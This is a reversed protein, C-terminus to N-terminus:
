VIFKPNIDDTLWVNNDSLFFKQGTEQLERAKITLIAPEKEKSHRKGVKYATEKDQSLHVYNRTRKQLGTKFISKVFDPSTGHYLYIPPIHSKFTIQVTSISHGQNARIMTEDPSYSYRKKDDSRVIEDLTQKQISLKTLLSSVDTWGEKDLILDEPNHRLLYSIKKSLQQLQM